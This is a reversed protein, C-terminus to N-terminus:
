NVKFYHPKWKCNKLFFFEFGYSLNIIKSSRTYNAINNHDCIFEIYSCARIRVSNTHSLSQCTEHYKFDGFWNLVIQLFFINDLIEGDGGLVVLLFNGM